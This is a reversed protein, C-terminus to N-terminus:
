VERYDVRGDQVADRIARQHSNLRSAGTKVDIFAIQDVKGTTTMGDFAVYDIPEFLSRCDYPQHPFANWGTIIKEVVFGLGVEMAKKEAGETAGHKRQKLEALRERIDVVQEKLQQEMGEIVEAAEEPMDGKGDFLVARSLLFEEGCEPCEAKLQHSSKLERIIRKRDM